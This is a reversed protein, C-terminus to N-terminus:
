ELKQFFEVMSYPDYGSDYLIQAGLADAESEATRSYKLFLSQAGFSLGMQALQGGVGGPLAAGLVALLPEAYQAKCAQQTAHRLIVHSMEHAMVGALQAEDDAAQITGLNVFMPGGPLAFANIEKSNVVHFSFPWSVQQPAHAVLTEGLRRVYQTIPSNDPLLPMQQRVQAAAQQGLQVDEQVSACNSGTNTLEVRGSPAQVINHTACGVTVAAAVTLAFLGNRRLMGSM